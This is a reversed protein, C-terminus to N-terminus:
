LKIENWNINTGILNSSEVNFQDKIKDYFFDLLIKEIIFHNIGLIKKITIYYNLDVTFSTYFSVKDDQDKNITEHNFEDSLNSWLLSSRWNKGNCDETYFSTFNTLLKLHSYKIKFDEFAIFDSTRFEFEITKKLNISDTLIGDMFKHSNYVPSTTFKYKVYSGSEPYTTSSPNILSISENTLINEISEILTNLVDIDKLCYRDHYERLKFIYTSGQYLIDDSQIIINVNLPSADNPFTILQFYNLSQLLANFDQYQPNILIITVEESEYLLYDSIDDVLILKFIHDRQILKRLTIDNFTLDPLSIKIISTETIPLNQLVSLNPSLNVLDTSMDGELYKIELLQSIL